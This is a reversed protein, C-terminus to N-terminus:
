SLLEEGRRSDSIGSMRGSLESLLGLILSAVFASSANRALWGGSLAFLRRVVAHCPTDCLSLSVEGERTVSLPLTISHVSSSILCSFSTASCM